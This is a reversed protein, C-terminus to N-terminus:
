FTMGLQASITNEKTNGTGAVNTQQESHRASFSSTVHPSIQHALAWYLSWTDSEQAAAKATSWNSGLSTSTRGSLALSWSVNMGTSEDESTATSGLSQRRSQNLSFALSSRGLSLGLSGSWTKSLTTQNLLQSASQTGILGPILMCGAPAPEGGPLAKIVGACDYILFALQQNLQQSANVVSESYNLGLAARRLRHSLNLAYSTFGYSSLGTTESDVGFAGGDFNKQLSASLSTLTTPAWRGSLNYSNAQNRKGVTAALNIRPSPSWNSSLSYSTSGGSQGISGTLSFYTTPYWTVGGTTYRSDKGQLLSVGQSSYRGGGFFVRTKPLVVYGINYSEQEFESTPGGGSEGSNRRYSAGWTLRDPRPGNRLSLNLANSTSSSLVSSDSSAYNLGLSADTIVSRDLFEDHLSPTLSVSRTEVRNSVTNYTNASTPGFQSAYQQGVRASGKVKFVGRVPELAMGANLDHTLTNRSFDHDYLLGNLSYALNANGRAGQRSLSIRPSIQTVFSSQGGTAALSVNDSYTETLNLGTVVKWDSAALASAPLLWPLLWALRPRYRNNNLRPSAMVVTVAM